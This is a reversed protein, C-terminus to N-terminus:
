PAADKGSAETDATPESRDAPAPASVAPGIDVVPLSEIAGPLQQWQRLARAYAELTPPAGGESRRRIFDAHVEHIRGDDVTGDGEGTGGGVDGSGANSTAPGSTRSQSVEEPQQRSQDGARSRQQRRQQRPENM